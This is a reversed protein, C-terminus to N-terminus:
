PPTKINLYGNFGLDGFRSFWFGSDRFGLDRFGLIQPPSELVQETSRLSIPPSGLFPWLECVAEHRPAQTPKPPNQSTNPPNLNTKPLNPITGQMRGTALALPGLTKGGVPPRTTSCFELWSLDPWADALVGGLLANFLAAPAQSQLHM